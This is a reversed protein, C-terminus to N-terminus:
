GTAVVKLSGGLREKVELFERIVERAENRADELFGCTNVLVVDADDAELALSFDDGLTEGLMTEADVLNKACGLSAMFLKPM